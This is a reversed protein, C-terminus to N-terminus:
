IAYGQVRLQALQKECPNFAVFLLTSDVLSIKTVKLGFVSLVKVGTIQEALVYRRKGLANIYYLGQSCFVAKRQGTLSLALHFACFLVIVLALFLEVHNFSSKGFDNLLAGFGWIAVAFVCLLVYFSKNINLQLERM